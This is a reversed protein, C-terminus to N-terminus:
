RENYEDRLFSRGARVHKLRKMLQTYKGSRHPQGVYRELWERFLGNLSQRNAAARQRAKQLLGADMSVTVNKVMFGEM